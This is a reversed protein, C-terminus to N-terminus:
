GKSCKLSQGRMRQWRLITDVASQPATTPSHDMRPLRKGFAVSSLIREYCNLITEPDFLRLATERSWEGMSRREGQPLKYAREFSRAIDDVDYPDCLFGNLGEKVLNGADCVNSMVVPKGCAMGECIANPLGEHFSFLGVFDAAHIVDAVDNTATNLQLMHAIGSQRVYDEMYSKYSQDRPFRGYWRVTILPRSLRDRLLKLARAVGLLNKNEQYSACIVVNLPHYGNRSNSAWEYSGASVRPKFRELDVLNYITTARDRLGVHVSGLALRNTHSNCVVADALRHFQRVVRSGGCMLQPNASRESVVLGSNFSPVMALEAYLCPGVLFALIVDQWGSRLVQRIRFYRAIRSKTDIKQVLINRTRLEEEFHPEDHYVLVRVEHGRGAFGKALEVIQRQAGGSGLSDILCLIKM